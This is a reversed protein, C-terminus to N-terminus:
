LDRPRAGRWNETLHCFLRHEIKNWTSTGPPFHSVHIALGLDDALRRLGAKWARSRYPNSGGADATIFLETAHGHEVVQEGRARCRRHLQSRDARFRDAAKM